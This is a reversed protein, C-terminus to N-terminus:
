ISIALGDSALETNGFICKAESLLTSPNKYRTSIHTIILRKAKSKRAMMAAEEATSHKREVALRQESNAYTSECIMLDAGKSAAIIEKSPRTDTSYVIKTGAERTTVSSLRVQKGNITMKGREQLKSFMAGKLGAAEAKQKIFHLRDDAQFVFGYAGISHILRFASVKFERGKFIVGTKIPKVTIKYGLMVRDFKLLQSIADIEGKPVYIELPATRRNLALTRVVGAIGISHDGHIHSLFIAKLRSLNVSYKMVQRQTGEGCDFLYLGGNCEIAVSPLGREATPASGSTGLFTTKIM